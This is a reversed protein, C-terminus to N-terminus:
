TVSNEHETFLILWLSVIIKASFVHTHMVYVLLKEYLLFSTSLYIWFVMFTESIAHLLEGVFGYMFIELSVLLVLSM